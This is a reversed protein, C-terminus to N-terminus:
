SYGHSKEWQDQDAEVDELVKCYDCVDNGPAPTQGCGYICRGSDEYAARYKPDKMREALYKEAGTSTMTPCGLM